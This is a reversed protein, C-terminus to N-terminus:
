RFLNKLIADPNPRAPATERAGPAAAPTQPVPQGRAVALAVPCIDVTGGSLAKNAGLLGGVIGLPTANGLVAGAVTGANSEATGLENVRVSPNRIAGTVNVPIVVDTGALKAQPRLELALTEDGLNVAGSGSMTLLSSSLALAKITGIGHQADMRAGFCRLESTGGKGVLNLANLSDLVKGLLSGLLRNDITGRAM